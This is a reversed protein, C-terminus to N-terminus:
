NGFRSQQSVSWRRKCAHWPHSATLTGLRAHSPNGLKRFLGDYADFHPHKETLYEYFGSLSREAGAISGGRDSRWTAMAQLVQQATFMRRPVDSCDRSTPPQKWEVYNNAGADLYNSSYDYHTWQDKILLWLQSYVADEAQDLQDRWTQTNGNILMTLEGDDYFSNGFVTEAEDFRVFIGRRSRPFKIGSFGFEANNLVRAMFEAFAENLSLDPNELHEHTSLSQGSAFNPEYVRASQWQHLYEHTLERQVWAWDDRAADSNFWTSFIHVWGGPPSWGRSDDSGPAAPWLVKVKTPHLSWSAMRKHVRRLGYFMQAARSFNYYAGPLGPLVNPSNVPSDSGNFYRTSVNYTRVGSQWSPSRLQLPNTLNYFYPVFTPPAIRARSDDLVITADITRAAGCPLLDRPRVVKSWRGNAAIRTSGVYAGALTLRVLAGEIGRYVTPGADGDVNWLNDKVLARGKVRVRCSSSAEATTEATDSEVGGCASALAISTLASLYKIRM